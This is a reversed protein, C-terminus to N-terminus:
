IQIIVIPIKWNMPNLTQLKLLGFDSLTDHKGWNQTRKSQLQDSLVSQM